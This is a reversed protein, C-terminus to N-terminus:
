KAQEETHETAHQGQKKLRTESRSEDTVAVGTKTGTEYIHTLYEKNGYKNFILESHRPTHADDSARVMFEASTGGDASTASMITLDTNPVMRFVYRGPPLTTNGVIFSHHISVEIESTIQAQASTAALVLLLGALATLVFASIRRM